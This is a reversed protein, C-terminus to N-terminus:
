SVKILNKLYKIRFVSAAVLPTFFVIRLFKTNPARQLLTAELGAFKM